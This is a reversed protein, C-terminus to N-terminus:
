LTAHFKWGPQQLVDSFGVEKDGPIIKHDIIEAIKAAMFNANQDLKQM